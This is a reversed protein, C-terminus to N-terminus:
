ASFIHDRQQSHQVFRHQAHPRQLEIEDIPNRLSAVKACSAARRDSRRMRMSQTLVGTAVSAIRGTNGRRGDCQGADDHRSKCPEDDRRRQMGRFEADPWGFGRWLLATTIFGTNIDVVALV